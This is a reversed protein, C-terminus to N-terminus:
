LRGALGLCRFPNYFFLIYAARLSAVSLLRFWFGSWALGSGREGHERIRAKLCGEEEKKGMEKLGEERVM